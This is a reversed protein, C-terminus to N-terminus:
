KNFSSQQCGIAVLPKGPKILVEFQQINFYNFMKLILLIFLFFTCFNKKKFIYNIYSTTYKIM